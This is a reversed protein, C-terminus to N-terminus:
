LLVRYVIFGSPGPPGVVRDYVSRATVNSEHTQWYLRAAHGARAREATADILARAIGHGRAAPATFLDQLYCTPEIAITTRHFLYHAFGVVADDNVAVLAHMQESPDHFRAWTARTVEPPLATVGVRGYFENYADWLPIWTTLDDPHLPDSTCAVPDGFRAGQPPIRRIRVRATYFAILVPKSDLELPTSYIEVLRALQSDDLDFRIYAVFSTGADHEPAYEEWDWEAPATPLAVSADALLSTAARHRADALRQYARDATPADHEPQAAFEALLARRAPEYLSRMDREFLDTHIRSAVAASLADYAVERAETVADVKTPRYTSIGVCSIPTTDTCYGTFPTKSTIWAPAVFTPVHEHERAVTSPTEHTTQAAGGIADRAHDDARRVDFIALALTATAVALGGASWIQRKSRRLARAHMEAIWQPRQGPVAPVPELENRISRTM